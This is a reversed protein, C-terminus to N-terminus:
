ASTWRAARCAGDGVEQRLLVFPKCRGYSLHLPMGASRASRTRRCGCRDAPPTTSRARCGACRRTTPRRRRRATTRGCTATSAARSTSTSGRRRCGTAKRTPAPSSARRRCAWASRTASAPPSSRPRRATRASAADPVRRDAHRHRRDQLLLLQGHPDTELCTDYSHEGGGTHWDNNVCEYFDAEGDDNLDHLRTLQGRELVVIKGDVVKLGLPHYLGTAFRQWTAQRLRRTSATVLWVDGHCTCVAIRGDPLFDLGTCFFLRRSPTRTPSPSRTSPSRPRHGRRARGQHRHPKWHAPRGQSRPCVRVAQHGAPSCTALEERGQRNGACATLRM